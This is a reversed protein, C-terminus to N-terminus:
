VKLLYVVGCEPLLVLATWLCYCDFYDTDPMVLAFFFYDQDISLYDFCIFRSSVTSSLLCCTLCSAPSSVGGRLIDGDEQDISLYDFCIFRSSVTSSLLCCTLCSAPSSVGGRLIDGDPLFSRRFCAAGYTSFNLCSAPSSVGGRFFIEM